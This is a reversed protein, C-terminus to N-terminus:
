ESVTSVPKGPPEVPLSNGAICFFCSIYTWGWPQSSGRSSSITVWEMIRAPFIGHVPSGLPSFDVPYCITLHSQSVSCMLDNWQCSIDRFTEKFCNFKKLSSRVIIKGRRVVGIHRCQTTLWKLQTQSKAVRHITAWWAGRDMPNELCYYQLPDLPYEWSLSQVQM